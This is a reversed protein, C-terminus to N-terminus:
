TTFESKGNSRREEFIVLENDNADWTIHVIDNMFLTKTHNKFGFVIMEGEPPSDYYVEEKNWSLKYDDGIITIHDSVMIIRALTHYDFV